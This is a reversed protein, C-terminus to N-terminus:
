PTVDPRLSRGMLTLDGVIKIMEECSEELRKKSLDLQKGPSRITRKAGDLRKQPKNKHTLTNGIVGKPTAHTRLLNLRVRTLQRSKHLLEHKKDEHDEKEQKLEDELETILVDQEQLEQKGVEFCARLNDHARELNAHEVALYDQQLRMNTLAERLQKNENDLDAAVVQIYDIRNELEAERAQTEKLEFTLDKCQIELDNRICAEAEFLGLTTCSSRRQNAELTTISDKRLRLHHNAIELESRAIKLDNESALRLRETEQLELAQQDYQVILREIAATITNLRGSFSDLLVDEKKQAEDSSKGDDAMNEEENAPVTAVNDTQCLQHRLSENEQSVTNIAQDRIATKVSLENNQAKLFKIEAQLEEVYPQVVLQKEALLEEVEADKEEMQEELIEVELHVVSDYAIQDKLFQNEQELRGIELIKERASQFWLQHIAERRQELDFQEDTNDNSTRAGHEFGAELRRRKQSHNEWRQVCDPVADYTSGYSPVVPVDGAASDISM